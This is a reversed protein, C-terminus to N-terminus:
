QRSTSEGARPATNSYVVLGDFIPNRVGFQEIWFGTAITSFPPVATTRVGIDRDENKLRHVVESFAPEAGGYDAILHVFPNM